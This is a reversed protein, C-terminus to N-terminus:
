GGKGTQPGNELTSLGLRRSALDFDFGVVDGASDLDVNLGDLVERTKVEAPSPREPSRAQSIEPTM